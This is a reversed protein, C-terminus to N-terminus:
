VKRKPLPRFVTVAEPVRAPLPLSALIDAVGALLEPVGQGTAASIFYVKGDVEALSAEIDPLRKKVELLDIKNVAVVEPKKVLSPEFLALEDRLRGWDEKPNLSTGDLLHILVRTREIHRLFDHGLGRGRHAGEVLGPIEALVYYRIGVQVMGLVPERTTFPYDAIEPRAASAARLLTSKGVSPYGILGVDAILKRDLILTREEGAEGEEAQSPAQRWPTAYHANGWGGRGGKAVVISQGEETLDALLIEREAEKKYVATGLPVVIVLDKGKRGQRKQSSGKAGGAAQWVRRRATAELSRAEEVARVIVDGGSGGKGGDPGGYPVYKERRFSVAGNSGRGGIVKIEVRDV